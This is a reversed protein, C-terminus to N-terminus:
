HLLNIGKFRNLKNGFYFLLSNNVNKELHVQSQRTKTLDISHKAVISITRFTKIGVMSISTDVNL